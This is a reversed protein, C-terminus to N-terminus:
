FITKAQKRSFHIEARYVKLM